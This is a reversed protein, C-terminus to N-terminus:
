EWDAKRRIDPNLVDNTAGIITAFEAASMSQIKMDSHCIRLLSALDAPDKSRQWQSLRGKLAEEKIIRDRGPVRCRLSPGCRVAWWSASGRNEGDNTLM